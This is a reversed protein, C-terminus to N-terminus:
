WNFAETHLMVENAEGRLVTRQLGAVANSLDIKLGEPGCGLVATRTKGVMKPILEGLNPRGDFRKEIPLDSGNGSSGDETIAEGVEKEKVELDTSAEITPSGNESSRTVHVHVVCHGSTTLDRLGKLENRIWTVSSENRVMWILAVRKTVIDCNGRICQALHLLWPLVATIGAGGAVLVVDEYVHQLTRMRTGYPGDVIASVQYDPSKSAESLLRRTFGKQSRIFFTLVNVQEVKVQIGGFSSGFHVPLSSITFPHHDFLRLQPFRLFCHQGPKWTWDGPVVVDLRAMGNKGPELVRVTTPCGRLWHGTLKFASMKWFFRALISALWLATTAWLYAWSDGLNGCHWYMLGLFVIAAMVHTHVFLEYALRRVIPLSLLALWALMGLPPTGNYELAGPAYFKKRLRAAGGEKASSSQILFPITHLMSLYFLIWGAWRHITNLKEHGYGTLLTVINVKGALAVTLPIVANAMLGTRVGLPPSGYARFPRYYPHQVFAMITVTLVSLFVLLSVGLGPAGLYEGLKGPIRRYSITRVMAVSKDLTSPNREASPCPTRDIVVYTFHVAVFFALIITYYWLVLHGYRFQSDWSIAKQSANHDAYFEICSDNRCRPDSLPLAAYWDAVEVPGHDM